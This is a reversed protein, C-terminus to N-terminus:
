QRAQASSACRELIDVRLEANCRKGFRAAQRARLEDRAIPRREAVRRMLRPDLRAELARLRQERGALEGDRLHAHGDAERAEATEATQEADAAALRRLSVSISHRRERIRCADYVECRM